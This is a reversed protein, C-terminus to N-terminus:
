NMKVAKSEIMQRYADELNLTLVKPTLRHNDDLRQRLGARLQSLTELDEAYAVAKEIYTREDEVVWDSLGLPKLITAGVCGVSPRDIKSLVPVGDM